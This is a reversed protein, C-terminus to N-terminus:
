KKVFDSLRKIAVAYNDASLNDKMDLWTSSTKRKTYWRDGSFKYDWVSDYDTILIDGTSTTTKKAAQSEPKEDPIAEKVSRQSKFFLLLGGTAIIGGIILIYQGIKKKNM